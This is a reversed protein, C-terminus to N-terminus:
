GKQPEVSSPFSRPSKKNFEERYIEYQIHKEELLKKIEKSQNTKIIILENM